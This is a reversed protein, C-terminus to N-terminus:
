GDMLFSAPFVILSFLFFGLLIFSFTFFFYFIFYFIKNKGNKKKQIPVGKHPRVQKLFFFFCFCFIDINKKFSKQRTVVTVFFCKKSFIYIYIHIYRYWRCTHPNNIQPTDYIKVNTIKNKYVLFFFFFLVLVASVFREMVSRGTYVFGSGSDWTLRVLRSTLARVRLRISWAKAAGSQTTLELLILGIWHLFFFFFFFSIKPSVVM